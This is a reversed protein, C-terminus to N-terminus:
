DWCLVPAVSPNFSSSLFFQCPFLYQAIAMCVETGSVDLIGDEKINGFIMPLQHM